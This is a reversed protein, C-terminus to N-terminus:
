VAMAIAALVVFVSRVSLTRTELQIGIDYIDAVLLIPVIKRTALVM